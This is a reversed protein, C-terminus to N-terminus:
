YYFHFHKLFYKGVGFGSLYCDKGSIQGHDPLCAPFVYKEHLDFPKDVEIIAMDMRCRPCEADSKTIRIAKRM